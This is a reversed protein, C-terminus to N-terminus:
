RVYKEGDYYWVEKPGVSDLLRQCNKCPKSIAPAGKNDIRINVFTLGSCDEVGMKILAATESHIGSQYDSGPHDGAYVGFKHHRHRKNYDNHAICVLKKKRYVATVHFARGSQRAPKLSRAIEELRTLRKQNM